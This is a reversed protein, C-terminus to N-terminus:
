ASKREQQYDCRTMVNGLLTASTVERIQVDYYEGPLEKSRVIIVVKNTDTRGAYEAESKRSPGEVLVKVTSGILRRNLFLSVEHQLQSIESVRAGKVEEAVDNDMHWAKTNERPSYKFTYAGDFAVERMLDLTRRHDADTETPFGSIVDTSLSVGPIAARVSEVLRLFQAASYSRNMLGLIRDSGSQVPLHIHRCINSTTAITEILRLPFDQPHSTMFRVRMSADVSAVSRILDAFDSSGDSYSNVNQGLLTIEKFGRTSLDEVERVVSALPRSRERGRTFPVVCFACFKDCGRMVSLWAGIGETRLPVIDAYDEVKSLKVAVGKEGVAAREVLGPLKRYEDPGVVLDVLQEEELFRSRLREAMCGLIGIILGPREQKIGRIQGLRRHIRQEANDRISCTNLLVVDASSLDEALAYGSSDLIGGVLESDALNMQCGYTEIYVRKRAEPYFM